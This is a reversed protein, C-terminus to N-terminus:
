INKNESLIWIKDVGNIEEWEVKVLESVIADVTKGTYDPQVPVHRSYRRDVLVLLEICDPRGYDLLADMASRITRGTYFVDDVLIVNKGEVSFDLSTSSPKMAKGKERFDDRYFTVDLKGYELDIKPDIEKLRSVLRDSLYIGRPQVGIICTNQFHDHNEILQYCLRDITLKFHTSDLIVRPQM